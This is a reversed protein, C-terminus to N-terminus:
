SLARGLQQRPSGFRGHRGGQLRESGAAARAPCTKPPGRGGRDGGLLQHPAAFCQDQPADGLARSPEPAEPAAAKGPLLHRGRGALLRPQPGPM